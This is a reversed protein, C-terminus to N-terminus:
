PRFTSHCGHCGAMVEGLATATAPVDNAESAVVLRGLRGHFEEDLAVFAAVQDGGKAPKWAGSAIASATAEKAAHVRHLAQAVERVDGAGIGRVALEMTATLLRMEAQVPNAPPAADPAVPASGPAVPASGHGAHEPVPAPGADKAPEKCGAVVVALVALLVGHLMTKSM